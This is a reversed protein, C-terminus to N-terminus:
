PMTGTAVFIGTEASADFYRAVRIDNGAFDWPVPPVSPQQSKSMFILLEDGLGDVLVPVFQPRTAGIFTAPDEIGQQVVATAPPNNISLPTGVDIANPMIGEPYVRLAAAFPNGLAGGALLAAEPQQYGVVWAAAPIVFRQATGIGSTDPAGPIQNPLHYPTRLGSPGPNRYDQPNRLRFVIKYIYGLDNPVPGNNFIFPLYILVRAGLPIALGGLLEPDYGPEGAKQDLVGPFPISNSTGQYATLYNPPPRLLTTLTFQADAM